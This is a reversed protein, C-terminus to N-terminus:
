ETKEILFDEVSKGNAIAETLWRPQRGRGTWTNGPNEADMYKVPAKKRQSAAKVTGSDQFGCVEFVTMGNEKAESEWKELLSKKTDERMEDMKSSLELQMQQMEAFSMKNINAL